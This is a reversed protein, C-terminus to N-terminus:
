EALADVVIKLMKLDKYALVGESNENKGKGEEVNYIIDKSKKDKKLFPQFEKVGGNMARIIAHPACTDWKYTSAGSNIYVDALGLPFGDKLLFIGKLPVFIGLAVMMIKHGAGGVKVVDCCRAMKALIDSDESSGILLRPRSREQYSTTSTISNFKVDEITGGWHVKGSFEATNSIISFPQNVVGLCPAGTSLSYAGILVTVVQFPIIHYNERGTNVKLGKTSPQGEDVQEMGGKIYQSTADIPDIWIGIDKIDFGNAPITDPLATTKIEELKTQTHVIQALTHAADTNGDLVKNLLNKTKIESEEVSVEIKEGYINQFENSEEGFINNKLEPFLKSLDRRVTEQILVDALTKFDKVFKSNKADGTKEEM